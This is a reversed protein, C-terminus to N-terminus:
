VALAARSLLLQVLFLVDFSNYEFAKEKKLVSVAPFFSCLFFFSSGSFFNETATENWSGSAWKYVFYKMSGYVFFVELSKKKASFM